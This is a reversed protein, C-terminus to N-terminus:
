NVTVHGRYTIPQQQALDAPLTHADLEVAYRGAPFPVCLRVHAFGYTIPANYRAEIPSDARLPTM